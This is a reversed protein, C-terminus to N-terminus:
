RYCLSIHSVCVCVCVCVCMCVCVYIYIYIYIYIYVCVRTHTHAHTHAHTRARARATIYGYCSCSPKNHKNNWSTMNVKGIDFCDIVQSSTVAAVRGEGELIISRGSARSDGVLSRRGNVSGMVLRSGRMTM